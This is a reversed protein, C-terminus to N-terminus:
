QNLISIRNSVYKELDMILDYHARKQRRSVAAQNIGLRMGLEEQSLGPNEIAALAFAGSQALWNDMIALALRLMLNIEVNFAEDGSNIALTVKQQKLQDFQEGSRVFASGNSESIRDGQHNKDGIGIAMRADLSRSRLFAKIRLATLLSKEPQDIEVQFEDGRYIEWQRPTTGITSLLAKFDAIWDKPALKRSNIIDGTLIAIM